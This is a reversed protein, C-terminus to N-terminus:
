GEVKLPYSFHMGLSSAHRCFANYRGQRTEYTNSGDESEWFLHGRRMDVKYEKAHEYLYTGAGIATYALSPNLTSISEKNRTIFELTATFDEESEGPFGFMFNANVNIGAEHTGRLVDEAEQISFGKHMLELVKQSGSEIGYSITVCGSAKMRKLLEPTMASRVMAQGSWTIKPGERILLDALCSLEKINGNLLSDVFDFHYAIGHRKVQHRIEEHVRRGSRSRFGRWFLNDNCFVCRNICGRSFYLPLVGKCDFRELAYDTFDADPIIDLDRIFEREPAYIIADSKKVWAGRCAQLEGREFFLDAMENLTIEGEGTVVADVADHKIIRSGQMHPAAQPGGFIIAKRPDRDKIKQAIILSLEQSSNFVSFGIIDAEAAIIKDVFVGLYDSYEDAFQAMFDNNEWFHENTIQWLSRKEEPLAHFIESNLDFVCVEKGKRRLYASLLAVALPPYQMGWAPCQILAIM